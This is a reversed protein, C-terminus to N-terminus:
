SGFSSARPSEEKLDYEKEAIAKGIYNFLYLLTNMFGAQSYGGSLRADIAEETLLRRYAKLGLNFVSNRTLNNRTFFEWNPPLVDTTLLDYKNWERLLPMGSAELRKWLETGPLPTVATLQPMEVQNKICFDVTKDFVDVTDEPLGFIFAGYLLVIGADHTRKIIEEYEQVKFKKGTGYVANQDLSEFGYFIACCGSDSAAKLLKENRAMQVTAQSIWYIKLGKLANFFEMAFRPNGVINDDALFFFRDAGKGDGALEDIDKLLQDIRFNRMKRGNFATVSCFDCDTPCGRDVQVVKKLPYGGLPIKCIEEFHEEFVKAIKKSAALSAKKYLPGILPKHLLNDFGGKLFSKMIPAGLRNIFGNKRKNQSFASAIAEQNVSPIDLLPNPRKYQLTTLDPPHEVRYFPQIRGQKADRLVTEWIEDAEGLVVSDAHQKAEEPM